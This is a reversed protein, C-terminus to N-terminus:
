EYPPAFVGETPILGRGTGAPPYEWFPERFNQREQTSSAGGGELPVGTDESGICRRPVM